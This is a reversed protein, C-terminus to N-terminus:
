AAVPQWSPASVTAANRFVLRRGTGDSNAVYLDSTDGTAVAFVVKRGDPSWSV